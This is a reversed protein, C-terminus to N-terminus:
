HSNRFGAQKHDCAALFRDGLLYKAAPAHRGYTAAIHVLNYTCDAIVVECVITTM